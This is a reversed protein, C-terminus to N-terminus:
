TICHVTMTAEIARRGGLIIKPQEWLRIAAEELVFLVTEAQLYLEMRIERPNRLFAKRDPLILLLELEHLIEGGHREMRSAVLHVGPIPALIEYWSM